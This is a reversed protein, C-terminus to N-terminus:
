SDALTASHEHSSVGAVFDLEARALTVAFDRCCQAARADFDIFGLSHNRAEGEPRRTFATM